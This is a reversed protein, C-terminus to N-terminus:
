DSQACREVDTEHSKGRTHRSSRSGPKLATRLSRYGSVWDSIGSGKSTPQSPAPPATLNMTSSNSARNTLDERDERLADGSTSIRLRQMPFSIADLKKTDMDSTGLSTEPSGNSYGPTKKGSSGSHGSRNTFQSFYRRFFVKLAPASACIVGLDAELATWIWGYYAYWTIDYTAYYVYIAYYTRMIGCVCTRPGTLGEIEALGSHLAVCLLGMGFLAILAVKQRKPIHLNWVLFIPLACIFFDQLTSIVVVSVIEAGENHCHLENELRWIIDFYRWYGVVPSCSFIIVFTFTIGYAAVFAISAWVWYVFGMTLGETIRRYFCLISIKILTTAALYTLEIAM